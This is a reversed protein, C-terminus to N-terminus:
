RHSGRGGNHYWGGHHGWGGWGWPHPAVVVPPPAVVVRPGPVYVAPPYPDAYAVCGGLM